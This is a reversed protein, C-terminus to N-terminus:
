HTVDASFSLFYLVMNSALTIVKETCILQLNLEYKQQTPQKIKLPNMEKWFM